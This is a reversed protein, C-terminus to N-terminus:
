CAHFCLGRVGPHPSGTIARAHLEPFQQRSVVSRCLQGLIRRIHWVLGGLAALLVGETLLQRVIRGRGAGLALRLAIERQRAATRALLLNAINVCVILLLIGVVGMLVFLPQNFGHSLGKLGTGSPL